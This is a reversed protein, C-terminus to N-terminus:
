CPVRCAYTQRLATVLGLCKNTCVLAEVTSTLPKSYKSANFSYIITPINRNYNELYGWNHIQKPKTKYKETYPKLTDKYSIKM